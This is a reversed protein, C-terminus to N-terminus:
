LALQGAQINTGFTAILDAAIVSRRRNSLM